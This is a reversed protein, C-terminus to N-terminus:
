SARSQLFADLMKIVAEQQEPSLQEIRRVRRMLRENRSPPPAGNAKGVGLLRDPSVRLVRALKVVQQLTIGRIGREIQSLSAQHTGLAKALEVQTMRRAQRATRLREGIERKSVVVHKAPRPM